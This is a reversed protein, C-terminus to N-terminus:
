EEEEDYGYDDDPLYKDVMEIFQQALEKLERLEQVNMKSAGSIGNMQNTNLIIWM